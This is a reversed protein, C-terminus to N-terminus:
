GDEGDTVENNPIKTQKKIEEPNLNEIVTEINGNAGPNPNIATEPKPNEKPDSKVQIGKADLFNKLKMKDRGVAEFAQQIEGGTLDFLNQYEEIETKTLAAKDAPHEVYIPSKPQEM